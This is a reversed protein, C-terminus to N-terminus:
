KDGEFCLGGFIFSMFRDSITVNKNETWVIVSAFCYARSPLAQALAISRCGPWKVQACGPTSLMVSVYWTKRRTEQHSSVTGACRGSAQYNWGHERSRHRSWGAHLHQHSTSVAAVEQSRRRFWLLMPVIVAPWRAPLLNPNTHGTDGEREREKM